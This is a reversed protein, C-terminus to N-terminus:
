CSLSGVDTDAVHNHATLSVEPFNKRSCTADELRETSCPFSEKNHVYIETGHHAFNAYEPLIHPVIDNENVVRTVHMPLQNIYRAFAVNGTRPQGYTFVEIKRWPINLRQKLEIASLIAVAGGLSHGTIIFRYSPSQKLEKSLEKLYNNTLADASDKFGKHVKAGKVHPLDILEYVLNEIWNRIRLSGRFALVIEKRADDRLLLVRGSYRHDWAIFVLHIDDTCKRCHWSYLKVSSCYSISNYDAFHLSDEQTGAQSIMPMEYGLFEEPVTFRKPDLLTVNLGHSEITTNLKDRSPVHNLLM